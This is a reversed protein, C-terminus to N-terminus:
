CVLFMCGATVILFNKHLSEYSNPIYLLSFFLSVTGGGGGCSLTYITARAV